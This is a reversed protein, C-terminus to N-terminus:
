GKADDEIDDFTVQKVEGNDVMQKYIDGPDLQQKKNFRDWLQMLKEWGNMALFAVVFSIFLALIYIYSDYKTGNFGSLIALGAYTTIVSVAMVFIETPVKKPILGKTIQVIVSVIFALVGLLGIVNTAMGVILELDIFM